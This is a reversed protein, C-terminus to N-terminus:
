CLEFCFKGNFIGVGWLTQKKKSAPIAEDIAKNFYEDTLGDFREAM